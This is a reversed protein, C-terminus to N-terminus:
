GLSVFASGTSEASKGKRFLSGVNRYMEPSFGVPSFVPLCRSVALWSGASCRCLICRRLGPKALRADATELTSSLRSGTVLAFVWDKFLNTVTELMNQWFIFITDETIAFVQFNRITQCFKNQNPFTLVLVLASTSTGSICMFQEENQQGGNSGVCM